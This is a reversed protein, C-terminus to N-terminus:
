LKDSVVSDSFKSVYDKVKLSVEREFGAPGFSESLRKLLEVEPNM